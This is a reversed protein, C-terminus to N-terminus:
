EIRNEKEKKIYKEEEVLVKPMIFSLLVVSNNCNFVTYGFHVGFNHLFTIDKGTLVFL